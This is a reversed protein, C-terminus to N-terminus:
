LRYQRPHTGAFTYHSGNNSYILGGASSSSCNEIVSNPGFTIQRVLVAFSEGFGFREQSRVTSTCRM